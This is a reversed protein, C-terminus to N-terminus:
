EVSAPCPEWTLAKSCFREALEVEQLQEADAVRLSLGVQEFPERSGSGWSAAKGVRVLLELTAGIKSRFSFAGDEGTRGSGIHRQEAGEFYERIDVSIPKSGAPEGDVGTVLLTIKSTAIAGGLAFDVNPVAGSVLVPQAASALSTGPYHTPRYGAKEVTLFYEGPRMGRVAYRGQKDARAFGKDQSDPRSILVNANAAPGEGPLTVIGSISTPHGLEVEVYQCYGAQPEFKGDTPEVMPLPGGIVELDYEGPQIRQEDELASSRYRYEREASRLVVEVDGVGEVGSLASTGVWIDITTPATGDRRARLAEFFSNPEGPNIPGSRGCFHSWVRQGEADRSGDIVWRGGKRFGNTGRSWVEVLTDSEDLGHFAEEVRLLAPQGARVVEGTFIVANSDPVSCDRPTDCTTADANSLCGITLLFLALCRGRM